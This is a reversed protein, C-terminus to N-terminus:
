APAAEVRVPLDALRRLIRKERRLLWTEFVLMDVPRWLAVWGVIVVGDSLLSHTLGDGPLVRDLVVSLVVCALIMVLALGLTQLGERRLAMRRLEVDRVRVDVYRRLGTAMREAAGPEPRPMRVILAGNAMPMASAQALLREIGTSRGFGPAMPDEPPPAFMAEPRDLDVTIDRNGM